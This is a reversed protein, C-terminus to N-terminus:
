SLRRKPLRIWYPLPLVVARSLFRPRGLSKWLGISLDMAGRWRWGVPPKPGTCVKWRRDRVAGALPGTYIGFPGADMVPAVAWGTESLVLLMRGCGLKRWQRLAVHKQEGTFAGGCALEGANQGDGPAYVSVGGSIPSGSALVCLLAWLLLQLGM